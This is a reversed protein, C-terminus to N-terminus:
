LASATKKAAHGEELEDEFGLFLFIVELGNYANHMAFSSLPVIGLLADHGLLGAHGSIGDRLFLEFTYLHEIGHWVSVAALPWMWVNKPLLALLTLSFVAIASNFILHSYENDGAAVLGYGLISKIIHEGLHGAQAALVAAFLAHKVSCQHLRDVEGQPKRM